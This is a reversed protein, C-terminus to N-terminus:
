GGLAVEDLLNRRKGEDIHELGLVGLKVDNLLNCLYGM